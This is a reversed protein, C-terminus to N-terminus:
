AQRSYLAKQLDVARKLKQPNLPRELYDAAGLKMAEVAESISPHGAMVVVAASAHEMLLEPLLALANVGDLENDLLILDPRFDRTKALADEASGSRVIYHGETKFFEELFVAFSASGEIVLTTFLPNKAAVSSGPRSHKGQYIHNLGSEPM